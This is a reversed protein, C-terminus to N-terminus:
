WQWEERCDIWGYRIECEANVADVLPQPGCAIAAVNTPYSLAQQRFIRPVDPRKGEKTLISGSLPIEEMDESEQDDTSDEDHETDGGNDTKTGVGYFLLSPYLLLAGILLALAMLVSLFIELFREGHLNMEGDKRNAIRRALAYGFTAMLITCGVVGAHIHRHWLWSFFGRTQVESMKSRSSPISSKETQLGDEPEPISHTVFAKVSVNPSRMQLDYLLDAFANYEETTRTVWYFHIPVENSLKAVERAINFSFTLGCGGSFILVCSREQLNNVEAQDAGYFGDLKVNISGGGNQVEEFVKRTWSKPELARVHLALEDDTQWTVSIPHWELASVSPVKLFVYQGAQCKSFGNATKVKIEIIDHSLIKAVARVSGRNALAALLKDATLMVVAPLLYLMGKGYHWCVFIILLIFLQHIFYFLEYKKRRIRHLSAFCMVTMLALAGFGYMSEFHLIEIDEDCNYIKCSFPLMMNRLLDGEPNYPDRGNAYGWVAVYTACHAVTVALCYWGLWRHYRIMTERSINLVQLLVSRRSIPLLVFWGLLVIDLVGLTKAMVECGEWSAAELEKDSDTYLFTLKKAGLPLSRRMRVWVMIWNHCLTACIVCMDLVSLYGGRPHFRFVDPLQPSFNTKSLWSVLGKLAVCLFATAFPVVFVYVRYTDKSADIDKAYPWLFGKGGPSFYEKVRDFLTPDGAGRFAYSTDIVKWILVYSIIAWAFLFLVVVLTKALVARRRARKGNTDYTQTESITNMTENLDKNRQLTQTGSITNM